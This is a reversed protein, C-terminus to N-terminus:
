PGSMRFSSLLDKLVAETGPYDREPATFTLTFAKRAKVLTVVCQQVTVGARQSKLVYRIGKVGDINTAGSEVKQFGKFRARYAGDLAELAEAIESDSLADAEIPSVKVVFSCDPRASDSVAIAVSQAEGMEPLVARVDAGQLLKWDAPYRCAFGHERSTFDKWPGEAGVRGANLRVLIEQVECIAKEDGASAMRLFQRLHESARGNDGEALWALGLAHQAAAFDERARVVSSLVKIAEDNRGLVRLTAGLEYRPELFQPKDRALSRLVELPLLVGEVDGRRLAHDRACVASLFRAELVLPSAKLVNEFANAADGDRGKERLRLGETFLKAVEREEPPLSPPDLRREAAFNVTWHMADGGPRTALVADRVADLEGGRLRWSIGAIRVGGLVTLRRDGQQYVNRITEVDPPIKVPATRYTQLWFDLVGPSTRELVLSMLKLAGMFRRLDALPEHREALRDYLNTFQTAYQEAPEDTFDPPAPRGDLQAELTQVLVGVRTEALQLVDGSTSERVPAYVPTFWFRSYVRWDRTGRSTLHDRTRQAYTRLEPIDPLTKDMLAIKKMLYDSEFCVRGLTTDALGGFLVVEQREADYRGNKPELSVGPGSLGGTQACRFLFALDDLTLPRLRDMKRGLLIVDGGKRDFVVGMLESMAPANQLEEARPAVVARKQAERLSFAHWRTPQAWLAGATGLLLLGLVFVVSGAM